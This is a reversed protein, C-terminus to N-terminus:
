QKVKKRLSTYFTDLLELLEIAETCSLNYITSIAKYSRDECKIIAIEPPKIDIMM